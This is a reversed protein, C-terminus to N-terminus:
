DETQQCFERWTEFSGRAIDTNADWGEVFLANGADFEFNGAHNRVDWFYWKICSDVATRADAELLGRRQLM